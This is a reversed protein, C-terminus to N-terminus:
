EPTLEHEPVAGPAAMGLHEIVKGEMYPYAHPYTVLRLPGQPPRVRKENIVERPYYPVLDLEKFLRHLPMWIASEEQWRLRDLQSLVLMMATLSAIMFGGLLLTFIGSSDATLMLVWVAILLVTLVVWELRSVHQRVLGEVLKRREMTATVVGLLHDYAIEQRTTAPHLERIERILDLLAPTSRDFDALRYDVQAQLYIDIQAHVRRYQNEDFTQALENFMIIDSDNAKLLETIRSQKSRAHDITFAMFIGFTFYAVGILLDHSNGWTEELLLTGIAIHLGVIFTMLAALIALMPIHPCRM